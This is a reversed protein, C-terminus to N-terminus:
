VSAEWSQAETKEDAFHLDCGNRGGLITTLTPPLRHLSWVSGWGPLGKTLTFM